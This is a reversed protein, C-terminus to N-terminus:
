RHLETRVRTAAKFRANTAVEQLLPQLHQFPAHVIDIAAENHTHLTFDSAVYRHLALLYSLM